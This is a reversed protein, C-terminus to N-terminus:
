VHSKHFLKDYIDYHSEPSVTSASGSQVSSFAAASVASKESPLTKHYLQLAFDKPSDVIASEKKTM